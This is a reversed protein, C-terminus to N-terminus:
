TSKLQLRLDIPTSPEANPHEGCRMIRSDQSMMAHDEEQTCAAQETGLSLALFSSKDSASHFHLVACPASDDDEHYPAVPNLLQLSVSAHGCGKCSQINKTEIHIVESAVEQFAWCM